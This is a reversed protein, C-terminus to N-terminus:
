HVAEYDSQLRTGQPAKLPVETHTPATYMSSHFIGTGPEFHSPHDIMEANSHIYVDVDPLRPDHGLDRVKPEQDRSPTVGHQFSHLVQPPYMGTKLTREILSAEKPGHESMTGQHIDMQTRNGQPKHGLARRIIERAVRRFNPKREGPMVEQWKQDLRLIQQAEQYAARMQADSMSM